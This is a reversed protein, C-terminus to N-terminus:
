LIGVLALQGFVRLLLEVLVQYRLLQRRLAGTDQRSGSCTITTLISAVSLEHVLKSVIVVTCMSDDKSGIFQWLLM